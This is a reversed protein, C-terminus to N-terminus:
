NGVAVMALESDTYFCEPDHVKVRNRGTNKAQYLALDARKVWLKSEEGTISAAIGISLTVGTVKPCRAAIDEGVRENIQQAIKVASEATANDFLLLFEDGGLRFLLDSARCNMNISEAVVKIVRDGIDHGYLDNVQKFYDIDIIAICTHQERKAKESAVMLTNDLQHRNLAGTLSDKTSLDSLDRQLKRVAEIVVHSISVCFTLALVFRLSVMSEQHPFAAIVSGVIITVNALLAEKKPVLFVITTVVPFVWYTALLGLKHVSLIISISLLLLPLKYGLLHRKFRLIAVVEIVLSLEFALLLAGLWAEGILFNKVGLPVFTILTIVLIFSLVRRRSYLDFLGEGQHRNSFASSDM